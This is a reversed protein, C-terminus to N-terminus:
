RRWTKASNAALLLTNSTDDATVNVPYTGTTRDRRKSRAIMDTLMKAVDSARANELRITEPSPVATTADSRDIQALLALIQEMDDAPAKIIISQTGYEPTITVQESAPVRTGKSFTSNLAQSTYGLDAFRVPVVRTQQGRGTVEEVDLKELLSDIVAKNSETCTVLLTRTSPEPLISITTEAPPRSTDGAKVLAAFRQTFLTTL